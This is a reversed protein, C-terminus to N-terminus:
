PVFSGTNFRVDFQGGSLITTVPATTDLTLAHVAIYYTNGPTLGPAPIVATPNKVYLPPQFGAVEALYSGNPMVNDWVATVASGDYGTKRINTPVAASNTLSTIKTTSTWEEGDVNFKVTYDGLVAPIVGTKTWGFEFWHLGSGDGRPFYTSVAPDFSPSQGGNWGSPGSVTFSVKAPNLGTKTRYRFFMATDFGNDRVGAFVELGYTRLTATKNGAVGDVTASITTEGFHRATVVGNADITAVDPNSSKWTVTKGTLATGNAARAVATFRTTTAADNLKVNLDSPATVEVSAVASPTPTRTGNCAALLLSVSTLLALTRYNKM